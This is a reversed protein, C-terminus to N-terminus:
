NYNALPTMLEGTKRFQYTANKIFQNFNQNNTLIVRDKLSHNITIQNMLTDRLLVASKSPYFVDNISQPVETSFCRELDFLWNFSPHSSLKRCLQNFRYWQLVFKRCTELMLSTPATSHQSRKQLFLTLSHILEELAKKPFIIYSERDIIATNNLKTSVDDLARYTKYAPSRPQTQSKINPFTGLFFYDFSRHLKNALRQCDTLKPESNGNEWNQITRITVHMKEALQERTFGSKERAIRIRKSLSLTPFNTERYPELFLELDDILYYAETGVQDIPLPDRPDDLDVTASAPDIFCALGTKGEFNYSWQRLGNLFNVIDCRSDTSHKLFSDYLRIILDYKPLATWKKRNVIQYKQYFTWNGKLTLHYSLYEDLKEIPERQSLMSNLLETSTTGYLRIFAAFEQVSPLARGQELQGIRKESITISPQLQSVVYKQTWGRMTREVSLKDALM